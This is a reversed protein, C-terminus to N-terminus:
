LITHCTVLVRMSFSAHVDFLFSPALFNILELFDQISCPRNTICIFNLVGKLPRHFVSLGM